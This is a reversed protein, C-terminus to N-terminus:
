IGDIKTYDGKRGNTIAVEGGLCRFSFQKGNKIHYDTDADDKGKDIGHIMMEASFLQVLHAPDHV